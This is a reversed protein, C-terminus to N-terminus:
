ETDAGRAWISGETDVMVWSDSVDREEVVEDSNVDEKSPSVSADDKVETEGMSGIVVDGVIL